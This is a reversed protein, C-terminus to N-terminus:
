LVVGEVKAFDVIASAIESSVDDDGSDAIDDHREQLRTLFSNCVPSGWRNYGNTTGYTDPALKEKFGPLNHVLETVGTEDNLDRDGLELDDKSFRLHDLVAGVACHGGDDTFYVCGGIDDDWGHVGDNNYYDYVIRLIDAKTLQKEM